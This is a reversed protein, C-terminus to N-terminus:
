CFFSPRISSWGETISNGMFVIRGKAKGSSKLEINEQKFRTLNAWDQANSSEMFVFSMLTVLLLKTTKM